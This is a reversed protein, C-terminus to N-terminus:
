VVALGIPSNFPVTDSGGFVDWSGRDLDYRLVENEMRPAVYVSGCLGDDKQCPRSLDLAVGMPGALKDILVTKRGTELNVQVLKGNKGQEVVFAHNGGVACGSPSELPVVQIKNGNLLNVRTLSAAGAPCECVYAFHGQLALGHPGGEDGGTSSRLAAIKTQAGSYLDIRTLQAEPKRVRQRCENGVPNEVVYLFRSTRDVAVGEPCSLGDAVVVTSNGEGEVLPIRVVEGSHFKGVFAAVGNSTVWVPDQIETAVVNRLGSASVRVLSGLPPPEEGHGAPYPKLNNEVVLLDRGDHGAAAGAPPRAAVVSFCLALLASPGM